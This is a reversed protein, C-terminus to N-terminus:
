LEPMAAMTTGSGCVALFVLGRMVYAAWVTLGATLPALLHLALAVAGIALSQALPIAFYSLRLSFSCAAACSLSLGEFAFCPHFHTVHGFLVLLLFRGTLTSARDRASQAALYVILSGGMQVLLAVAGQRSLLGAVRSCCKEGAILSFVASTAFLSALANAPVFLLAWRRHLAVGLLARLPLSRAALFAVHGATIRVAAAFVAPLRLSGSRNFRNLQWQAFEDEPRGPGAREIPLKPLPGAPLRCFDGSSSARGGDAFTFLKSIGRL